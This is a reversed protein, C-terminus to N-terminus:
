IIHVTDGPAVTGPSTVAAYVRSVAGNRHHIHLFDGDAFWRGVKSCPVAYATVTCDVTGLRLRVGPGIEEWPFGALTINEGADGPAIPHGANRLTTIVDTSWLCLAQFPAGHHQRTSQVDGDAGDYGVRLSGVMQKPVGGRSTSVREVTGMPSPRTPASPTPGTDTGTTDVLAAWVDPLLAGIHDIPDKHPDVNTLRSRVLVSLTERTSPVVHAAPDDVLDLALAVLRRADRDTFRYPGVSHV